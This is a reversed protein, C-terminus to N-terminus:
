LPLSVALGRPGIVFPRHWRHVLRASVIGLAAGFVLDSLWHKDDNVRSYATLTAAGYFLADTWHDKTESSLSTALAFAITTHGSPLSNGHFTFPRFSFPTHPDVNPRRRGIASKLILTTGSAIVVSEFARWSVGELVKSGLARGALTGGLLIPFVYVPNGEADGFRVLISPLQATDRNLADRVRKDIVMAGATLGLVAGVEWVRLVPKTPVRQRPKPEPKQQQAVLPQAVLLLAVLTRFATM